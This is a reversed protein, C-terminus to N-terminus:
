GKKAGQFLYVWALLVPGITLAVDALNFVFFGRANWHLFLFDIVHGHWVRDILNGIAGGVILAFGVSALRGGETSGRWVHLVVLTVFATLVILIVSDASNGMSFAIGTNNVRYLALFPPLVEIGQQYVLHADAIWKSVQDIAVTLVIIALGLASLPGPIRAAPRDAETKIEPESTM